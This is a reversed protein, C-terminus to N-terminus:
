NLNIGTPASVVLTNKLRLTASEQEIRHLFKTSFFHVTTFNQGVLSRKKYHQGDKTTVRVTRDTNKVIIDYGLFRIVETNHKLGSKAKSTNLKLVDKLFTEIKKYIEEAEKKACIASLVFDDAYRCYRLRRFEEDYQNASPITRMHRQVQKKQMLLVNRKEENTEREIKKNLGQKIFNSDRIYEPNDARKKGREFDTILQAVFCDLEHLAINALIPSSVGGVFNCVKKKPIRMALTRISGFCSISTM